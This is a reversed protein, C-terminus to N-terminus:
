YGTTGNVTLEGSKSVLGLVTLDRNLTINHSTEVINWDIKDGNVGTSNPANWVTPQSWTSMTDWDGNNASTYPIPATNEQPTFINKLRGTISGAAPIIQGCQTNMHYYGALDVM